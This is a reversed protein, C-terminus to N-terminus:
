DPTFAQGIYAGIRTIARRGEPVFSASFQWEHQMGPWVELTVAVGAAKAREALRTADSLLVEDSGVQILLPPLEHIDAFLPSALPECPDAGKLYLQASKLLYSRTLFIDARANTRYSEGSVTLDTWPSLCVAAAPLPMGHDRVAILLALALGGGSSDGAVALHGLEYGNQLLWRYAAM